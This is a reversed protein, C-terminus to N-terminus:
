IQPHTKQPTQHPRKRTNRANLPELRKPPHVHEYPTAVNRHDLNVGPISEEYGTRFTTLMPLPIIQPM